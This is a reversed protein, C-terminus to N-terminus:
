IDRLFFRPNIRYHTKKAAAYDLFKQRLFKKECGEVVNGRIWSVQLAESRFHLEKILSAIGLSLSGEITICDDFHYKITPVPFLGQKVRVELGKNFTTMKEELHFKGEVSQVGKSASGVCICMQYLANNNGNLPFDEMYLKLFDKLGLVFDGENDCEWSSLIEKKSFLIDWTKVFDSNKSFRSVDEMMRTRMLINQDVFVSEEVFYESAVLPIEESSSDTIVNRAIRSTIRESSISSVSPSDIPNDGLAGKISSGYVKM